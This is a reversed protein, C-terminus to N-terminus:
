AAEESKATRSLVDKSTGVGMEMRRSQGNRLLVIARDRSVESSRSTRSQVSEVASRQLNGSLQGHSVGSGCNGKDSMGEGDRHGRAAASMGQGVGSEFEDM